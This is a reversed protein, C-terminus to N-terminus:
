RAEPSPAKEIKAWTDRLGVTRNVVLHGPASDPDVSFYGLREFQFRSGPKADALSPEVRSDAVVELSAPGQNSLKAATVQAFLLQLVGHLGWVVALGRRAWAAGMAARLALLVPLVVWLGLQIAAKGEDEPPFRLWLWALAALYLGLIVLLRRRGRAVNGM